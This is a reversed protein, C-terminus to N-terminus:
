YHLGITCAGCCVHLARGTPVHAVESECYGLLQADSLLQVPVMCMSPFPDCGITVQKNPNARLKLVNM